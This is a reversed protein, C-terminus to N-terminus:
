INELRNVDDSDTENYLQLYPTHKLLFQILEQPKQDKKLKKIQEIILSGRKKGLKEIRGLSVKDLPNNLYKLFAIIDKIEKRDYFRTGGYIRYPLSYHLCMEEFIRSQANTRYLIAFDALSYEGKFNSEQIKNIVFQAENEAKDLPVIEVEEGIKKNTWLKLIPHTTNKSIVDYAFDLIPQSSRYNEELNFTQANEFDKKFKQLNRFDAGRWSYISQSFDGVIAIRQNKEALLKAILYQAHNTDQYEDILLYQYQDQLKALIQPNNQFLYVTENLLDDFDVANNQRLRNQYEQYVHSIAEDYTNNSQNLLQKPTLLSNKALSIRYLM